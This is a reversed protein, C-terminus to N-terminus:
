IIQAKEGLIEKIKELKKKDASSVNEESTMRVPSNLQVKDPNIRDVAEKLKRISALNDNVGAVLMVELWIKGRFEKRLSILGEIIDDIMIGQHPRDIERFVAQTAADLSPLILDAALLERRLSDDNLLSANTIVAVPKNTIQKIELILAGIKSNLTPEGSGSVTIYDLGGAEGPNSNIWSRLENLIDAAPIYEKRTVTLCNTKGL